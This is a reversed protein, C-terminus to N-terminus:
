RRQLVDRLRRPIARLARRLGGDNSADSARTVTETVVSGDSGDVIKTTVLDENVRTIEFTGSKVTGDPQFRHIRGSMRDPSVKDLYVSFYRGKAAFGNAVLAQQDPRWGVIESFKTGDSNEWKGILYDADTRPKDWHVKASTGDSREVNWHGLMWKWPIDIVVAVPRARKFVINIESAEGDEATRELTVTYVDKSTLSGTFAGNFGLDSPLIGQTTGEISVPTVKDLTHTWYNGATGFGNVVMAKKDPRWGALESAVNGQDDQFRGLLVSGSARVEWTATGKTGDSIEYTWRGQLSNWFAVHPPIKDEAFSSGCALSLFLILVQSKRKM